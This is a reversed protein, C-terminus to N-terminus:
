KQVMTSARRRVAAKPDGKMELVIKQVGLAKIQRATEPAVQADTTKVTKLLRGSLNYINLMVPREPCGVSFISLTSVIFQKLRFERVLISDKKGDTPLITVSGKASDKYYGVAATAIKYYVKKARATNVIKFEYWGGTSTTPALKVSLNTTDIGLWATDSSSVVSGYVSDSVKGRIVLTDFVNAMTLKCDAAITDRKGDGVTIAASSKRSYAAYGPTAVDIKVYLPTVKTASNDINVEYGGNASTTDLKTLVYNIGDASFNVAVIAGALKQNDLSDVVTGRVFVSDSQALTKMPVSVMITDKKGDAPTITSDKLAFSGAYNGIAAVEVRTFVHATKAANYYKVLYIGSNDSTATISDSYVGSAAGLRVKIAAGVVAIAGTTDSIKGGVLLTDGTQQPRLKVNSVITDTAGNDAVIVADTTVTSDFYGALGSVAIKAYVHTIRGSNYYKVSYLGDTGSKVAVLPISYTTGNSGLSVAVNAGSVPVLGTTDTITGRVLLTDSQPQKRLGINATLTDAAGDAPIIVADTKVTSDLWTAANSM